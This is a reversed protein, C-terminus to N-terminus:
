RQLPFTRTVVTADSFLSPRAMEDDPRPPLDEAAEAPWDSRLGTVQLVPAAGRAHRVTLEIGDEPMGSYRWLWWESRRAETLLPQDWLSVGRLGETRVALFGEEGFGRPALRLTVARIEGDVEDALVELTPASLALKPATVRHLDGETVGPLIEAFSVTTAGDQFVDRMWPTLVDQAATWYPEGTDADYWYFVESPRPHREDFGETGVLLAFLAVAAVALGGRLLGRGARVATMLPLLVFGAAGVVLTAPVAPNRTGVAVHLYYIWFSLWLLGPLAGALLLGLNAPEGPDTDARSLVWLGAGAAFMLPWALLYSAEPAFADALVALVALVALAGTGQGWASIPRRLAFAILLGVVALTVLGPWGTLGGALRLGLLGLTLLLATPYSAGRSLLDTWVLVCLGGILVWALLWLRTDALVERFAYSDSTPALLEGLGGVLLYVGAGLAVFALAGRLLDPWSALERRRVRWGLLLVLAAALVATAHGVTTPYSVFVDGAVNFYVADRESRVPVERSGFHRALSLAYSGMHQLSARSLHAPTDTPSHYDYRDGVLAFNMGQIGAAKAISLDSDNPMRRYVRYLMSSARPHPARSLGQIVSANGPGTEFMFVPGASGRAEFNLVLEIEEALPHQRFFAQAGLLGREEADTVLFLVDRDPRPGHTLARATELLIAVGSGDDAAGPTQRGTDYHAMLALPRAEATGPLRAVVNTVTAGDRRGPWRAYDYVVQSTRTEVELGLDRFQRILYERARAHAPSGTPRPARAIREVHEFAREASFVGPAADLGLPSPPGSTTLSLAAIAAIVAPVSLAAMWRHRGFVRKPEPERM